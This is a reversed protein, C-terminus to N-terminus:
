QVAGTQTALDPYRKQVSAPIDEADACGEQRCETVAAVAIRAGSSKVGEDPSLDGSVVYWQGKVLDPLGNALDIRLRGPWTTEIGKAGSGGSKVMFLAPQPKGQALSQGLAVSVKSLSRSGDHFYAIRTAKSAGQLRRADADAQFKRQRAAQLRAQEEEAKRKAEAAVARADARAKAANALEEATYAHLVKATGQDLYATAELLEFTVHVIGDPTAPSFSPKAILELFVQRAGYHRRNIFELLAEAEGASVPLGFISAGDKWSGSFRTIAAPDTGCSAWPHNWHFGDGLPLFEFMQRTKDYPGFKYSESFRVYPKTISNADSIMKGKFKQLYESFRFENNAMQRFNQCDSAGAYAKLTAQNDAASPNEKLYRLLLRWYDLKSDAMERVSQVPPQPPAPPVPVVASPPMVAVTTTTPTAMSQSVQASPQNVPQASPNQAAANAQVPSAAWSAAKNATYATGVQSRDSAKYVAATFSNAAPCEQGLVPALKPLFDAVGGQLLPSADKLMLSLAMNPRCWAGLTDPMAFVEVGMRESYALRHPDAAFAAPAALVSGAALIFMTRILM